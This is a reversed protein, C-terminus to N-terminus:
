GCPEVYGRVGGLFDLVLDAKIADPAPATTDALVRPTTTCTTCTWMGVFAGLVVIVYLLNKM